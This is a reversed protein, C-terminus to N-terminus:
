KVYDLCKFMFILWGIHPMYSKLIHLFENCKIFLKTIHFTYAHLGLLLILGTPASIIM